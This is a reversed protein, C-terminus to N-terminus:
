AGILNVRDSLNVQELIQQVAEIVLEPQELQIDHGSHQAIIRQSNSSLAAQEGQLDQWITEYEANIEDSFNPMPQPIGHSLVVLPIDGLTEVPPNKSSVIVEFERLQAAFHRASTARIARDIEAISQPVRKDLAMSSVRLAPIGAAFVLRMLKMMPLMRSMMALMPKPFRKFQEEHAADVLVMGVVENPYQRAFQRIVVGGFSHGVLVYPAPIGANTLLAHLEQAMVEATRPKPSPESWGMGARDYVVTRAHKAIEAQVLSWHLGIGGAGADMVVTVDGEGQEHLHLRYGGVDVMQGIPPYQAQLKAQARKGAIFLLSLASMMGIIILVIVNM